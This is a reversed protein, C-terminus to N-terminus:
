RETRRAHSTKELSGAGLARLNWEACARAAEGPPLDLDGTALLEVLLLMSGQWLVAILRPDVTAAVGAPAGAFFAATRDVFRERIRQRVQEGYASAFLARVLEPEELAATIGTTVMAGLRERPDAKRGAVEDVRAAIRDSLRDVLAVVLSEKDAFHHYYNGVSSEAREAVRRVTLADLGQERVIEMAADVISRRVEEAHEVRAPTRRYPM